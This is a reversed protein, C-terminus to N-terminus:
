ADWVSKRKRWGVYYWTNDATLVWRKPVPLPSRCMIEDEQDGLLIHQQWSQADHFNEDCNKCPYSTKTVTKRRVYM